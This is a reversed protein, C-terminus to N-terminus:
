EKKIKDLADNTNNFVDHCLRVLPDIYAVGVVGDM